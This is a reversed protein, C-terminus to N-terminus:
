SCSLALSAELAAEIVIAVGDEDNSPAVTWGHTSALHHLDAPANSMLASQGALHLMPLDNWNDGIALIDNTSIGRLHALHQLASAKSSGAPLIDVISLDRDPYETRNLSIRAEARTEGVAAVWSNELLRAEARRMREVSGALMM